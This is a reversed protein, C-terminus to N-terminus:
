EKNNKTLKIILLRWWPLHTNGTDIYSIPNMNKSYPGLGGFNHHSRESIPKHGKFMVCRINTNLYMTHLTAPCQEYKM